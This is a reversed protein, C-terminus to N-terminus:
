TGSAFVKKIVIHHILSDDMLTYTLTQAKWNMHYTGSGKKISVDIGHPYQYKPVFIETEKTTLNPDAHFVLDFKRDKRYLSFAFHDVDGAVRCPYPRIAALLSRGGAFLDNEKGPVVQDRSFLSLDEGNWGDGHRNTNDPQYCWVTFSVKAIDLSGMTRDLAHTCKTFDGTEFATKPEKGSFFFPKRDRSGMDFPIGCEGILVPCGGGDGMHRAEEMLKSIGKGYSQQILRMSISPRQTVADMGIYRSFSKTMLTMGDYYHPAYVFGGLGVEENTLVPDQAKGPDTMDLIPEIFIIADPIHKRIAKTAGLYFPLGYEKLFQIPEGTVPNKAFHHPKLLAPEGKSDLKWVGNQYWVCSSPGDQWACTKSPNLKRTGDIYMFSPFYDVECTKGAGMQIASWTDVRWGVYYKNPGIDRVDQVGVFGVSPENLIDFGVVNPEDKLKEALKSLTGYFHRQLYDQVPEDEIKTAPAFDNGAFFLTWMTGAALRSNNSNWVMKPYEDGEFNQQTLAAASADLKDLGFGVKELTWAPAGDGGTWRSWVDQHLDVFVTIKYEHCRRVVQQLYTLYEEDYVGPGAHEVAEWTVLLRVFTYGMARLRGLHIDAEDLPFPRGVFSVDKCVDSNCFSSDQLHTERQNVPRCPLKTSASLNIGRLLLRRGHQDRFWSGKRAVLEGRVPPTPAQPWDAKTMQSVNFRAVDDSDPVVPDKRTWKLWMMMAICAALGVFLWVVARKASKEIIAGIVSLIAAIILFLVPFLVYADFPFIQLMIRIVHFIWRPLGQKKLPPIEQQAPQQVPQQTPTIENEGHNNILSLSEDIPTRTSTAEVM